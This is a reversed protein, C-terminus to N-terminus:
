FCLINTLITICRCCEIYLCWMPLVIVLLLSSVYLLLCHIYNLLIHLSYCLSALLSASKLYESEHVAYVLDASNLLRRATPNSCCWGRWGDFIASWRNPHFYEKNEGGCAQSPEPISSCSTITITYARPGWSCVPVCRLLYYHQVIYVM